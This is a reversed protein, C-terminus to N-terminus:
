FSVRRCVCVSTYVGSASRHEQCSQDLLVDVALRHRTMLVGDVTIVQNLVALLGYKPLFHHFLKLPVLGVLLYRVVV